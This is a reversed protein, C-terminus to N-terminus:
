YTFLENVVSLLYFALFSFWTKYIPSCERRMLYTYIATLILRDLFEFPHLGTGIAFDTIRALIFM